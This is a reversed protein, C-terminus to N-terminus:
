TLRGGISYSSASGAAESVLAHGRRDFDFGYPTAGASPTSVATGAYGHSLPFSEIANNARETVIIHRGNPQISIQAADATGGTLRLSRTSNPLAALLGGVGYHFGSITSSGQNLVYGIHDHVAM